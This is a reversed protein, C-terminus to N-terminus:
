RIGLLRPITARVIDVGQGGRHLFGRLGRGTPRHRMEVPIEGVRYGLRTLDITMAVETGFGAALPRATALAEATIARQGSLPEETQLGSARQIMWRALRKVIGFGGGPQVPLRGISVDLRGSLVPELLKGAESATDGVDGDIVLYVTAQGALDLAADLAPGKGMRRPAVLVRAEAGLAEDATRDTSGDAVVVVGDVGDVELLSKVTAAIREEENYAPVLALVRPAQGAEQSV